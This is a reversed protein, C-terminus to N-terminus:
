SFLPVPLDLYRVSGNRTHDLSKMLEIQLKWITKIDGKDGEPVRASPIVSPRYAPEGMARVIM